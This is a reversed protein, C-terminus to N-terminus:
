FIRTKLWKILHHIVFTGLILSCILFYGAFITQFNNLVLSQYHANDDVFENLTRFIKTTHGCSMEARETMCEYLNASLGNELSIAFSHLSHFNNSYNSHLEIVELLEGETSSNEIKHM